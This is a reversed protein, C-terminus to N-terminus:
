GNRRLLLHERINTATNGVRAVIHALEEQTVGLDRTWRKMQALDNLDLRDPNGRPVNDNNM